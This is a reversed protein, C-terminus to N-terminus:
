LDANEEKKLWQPYDQGFKGFHIESVVDVYEQRHNQILVDLIFKESKSINMPKKHLIKNFITYCVHDAQHYSRYAICLCIFMNYVYEYAQSSSIMWHFYPDEVEVFKEEYFWFDNSVHEIKGKEDGDLVRHAVSLYIAYQEIASELDEDCHCMASEFPDEELILIRNFNM